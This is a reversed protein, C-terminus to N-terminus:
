RINIKKFKSTRTNRGERRGRKLILEGDGKLSRKAENEVSKM